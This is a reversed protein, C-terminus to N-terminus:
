IRQQGCPEDRLIGLIDSVIGYGKARRKSITASLKGTKCITDGLYREESSRHMVKDHVKLDACETVKTGCHIQKCKKHSLRLKKSEIFGNVTANSEVSKPGCTQIDVIDDVMELAPIPVNGKYKYCLHENQYKLKGLKEMTTTCMLGAWVTGQMVKESITFRESLGQSSKVAVQASQNTLYILNLHDNQLGATYLDNISEKLWMEDFCKHVDYVALDIAQTKDHRAANVVAGLVFINDRINRRKRSGVNCDTLNTDITSYEENYMLLDLINRLAEIRFVGRYSDLDSRDGKRKYIKSVNCLRLCDPFVQDSKIRNMLKLIAQIMDDGLTDPSFLENALGLPDRSKKKKLQKLVPILDQM